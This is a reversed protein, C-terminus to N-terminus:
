KETRRGANQYRWPPVTSQREENSPDGTIGQVVLMVALLIIVALAVFPETYWFEQIM